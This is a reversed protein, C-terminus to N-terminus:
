KKAKTLNLKTIKVKVGLLERAMTKATLDVMESGSVIVSQVVYFKGHYPDYKIAEVLTM